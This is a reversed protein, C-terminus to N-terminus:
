KLRIYYIYYKLLRKIIKQDSQDSYRYVNSRNSGLCFSPFWRNYELCLLCNYTHRSHAAVLNLSSLLKFEKFLYSKKPQIVSFIQVFVISHTNIYRRSFFFFCACVWLEYSCLLHKNRPFWLIQKRFSWVITLDTIIRKHMITAHICVHSM